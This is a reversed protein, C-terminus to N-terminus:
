PHLGKMRLKAAVGPAQPDNPNQKLWQLAGVDKDSFKSAGDAMANNIFDESGQKGVPAKGKPPSVYKGDKINAPDIGYSQLLSNYTDEDKEKLKGHAPLRAVQAAKVQESAVDRERQITDAIRNVFAQQDRGQPDNTLFEKLDQAKGLWTHPVLAEVQSAAGTSSNSLMSNLGIALEEMQRKDLSGPQQKGQNVLSMLRDAADVKKQNFGLNGARGANPDLDSKLASAMKNVKGEDSEGRKIGLEQQKLKTTTDFNKQQREQNAAVAQLKQDNLGQKFNRSAIANKVAASRALEAASIKARQADAADYASNDAKFGTGSALANIARGFGSVLAGDPNSATPAQASQGANQDSADGGGGRVQAIRQMVQASKTQPGAITSVPAGGDQEGGMDEDEDDLTPDYTM